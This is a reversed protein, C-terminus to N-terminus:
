EFGYKVLIPEFIPYYSDIINWFGFHIKVESLKNSGLTKKMSEFREKAKTENGLGDHSTGVYIDWWLFGPAPTLEM